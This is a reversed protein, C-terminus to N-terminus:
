PMAGQLLRIAQEVIGMAQDPAIAFAAIVGAALSLILAARQDIQIFTALTM